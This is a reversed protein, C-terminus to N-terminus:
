LGLVKIWKKIIEENTISEGDHEISENGHFNTGTTECEDKVLSAVESFSSAYVDTIMDYMKEKDDIFGYEIVKDSLLPKIHNEYYNQDSINGFLIVKEMGDALAREISIHTQKNVDFSGIIGAVKEVEKPKTAIVEKMNPIISFKGKYRSHYERHKNNIFVAEDWWQTKDGVEYLDKEHCSLVVKKVNLKPLDLFHGIIVDNKNPKFDKILASKCKDLHWEHPGYFITEYGAENLANTLRTFVFTSGGKNSWGSLIKIIGKEEPVPKPPEIIKNIGTLIDETYTRTISNMSSEVDLITVEPYHKLMYQNVNEGNTYIIDFSVESIKYLVDNKSPMQGNATNLLWKGDGRKFGLPETLPFFSIKNKRLNHYQANDIQSAITVSHGEKKLQIATDLVEQITGSALVIKFRENGTFVRNLNVPLNDKYKEAFKVRNDEWENNTMGISLHNVRIKTTVGLKVGKLHNRFCFDIDYFHFGEIDGFDEKIRKKHVAFFVGDVIVVEEINNGLDDSYKSLWTKGKNTHAVRGYMKSKNDWWRGSEPMNKTGAVGLVGYEPNDKFLKVLKKATQTTEIIIDDHLFVVIDFKTKDLFDNYCKTLSEGKNIYELIEVKPHGAMKKLHDIHKQNHERTCYVISIM